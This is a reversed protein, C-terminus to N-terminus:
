KGVVPIWSRSVYDTMTLGVLIILWFFGVGAFIWTLRSSFKVHMFYLIVLMAKIVAITMAIVINFPGVDIFAVGVTVALLIMLIAFITYYTTKPLIHGSM